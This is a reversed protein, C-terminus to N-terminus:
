SIARAVAAYSEQPYKGTTKSITGIKKEWTLTLDKLWYHKSKEDEIYGEIDRAGTCMKFGHRQDFVKESKINEMHVILVSKSTEPYYGRGTGQHTISNFYTDIRMFTGLAGNDDAYWSQTVEPIERKLDKILPPNGIGYAITELPYGQTM